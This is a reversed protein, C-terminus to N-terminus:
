NKNKLNRCQKQKRQIGGQGGKGKQDVFLSLTAGMVACIGPRVVGVSEDDDINDNMHHHHHCHHHHHQHIHHLRHYHHHHHHHRHLDGAQLQVSSQFPLRGRFM